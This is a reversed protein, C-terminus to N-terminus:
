ERKSKRMGSMLEDYFVDYYEQRAVKVAKFFDDFGQGTKSSVVVVNLNKYFEDLVLCLSHSFTALYTNDKHLVDLLKTFDQMWGLVEESKGVDSKNLVIIMPLKSKYLISCAFLM